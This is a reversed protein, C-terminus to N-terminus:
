CCCRVYDLDMKQLNKGGSQVVDRVFNGYYVNQSIRVDVIHAQAGSTFAIFKATSPLEM